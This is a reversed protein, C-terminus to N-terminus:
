ENDLDVIKAQVKSEPTQGQISETINKAPAATLGEFGVSEAWKRGVVIMTTEDAFKARLDKLPIKVFSFSGATRGSGPRTVKPKANNDM